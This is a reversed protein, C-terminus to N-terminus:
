KPLTVVAVALGGLKISQGEIKSSAPPNFATTQDVVALNGGQADPIKLSIESDRKNVLLLKREGSRTVYGQVMVTGVSSEANVIKDGPGLNDHILKLAWFRANPQGTEWNHMAISAWLGPSSPVGSENLVDIGRTALGAYVYAFTAGSLNWYSQRIPKFVYGPKTQAWDDPLMTGMENIMTGTRPTFQKRVAEIYGVIELFRDAEYFFTVPQIEPSEDAGPVAYFHYSIMDLPVGPKHHRPNLFYLFFDPHGGAYDDSMGVFKTEPSVKHIAEVIVDYLKTYDQPSWGHELNPENFVEWYDIKYHHGSAHWKGLEDTFGGKVHWSVVRAFYDAVEKYTPDRLEKGPACDWCVQSPDDPYHVPKADKFMWEPITTFNMVMPHGNLAKMVDETVQDVTSFDWYTLSSTPPKLEAIGYHAYISGGGAYRVDDAGLDKISQLIADRTPSGRWIGPGTGVFISPVTKSVRVVDTWHPTIEAPQEQASLRVSTMLVFLAVLTRVAIAGKRMPREQHFTIRRRNHQRFFEPASWNIDM